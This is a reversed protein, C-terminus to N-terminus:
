GSMRAKDVAAKVIRGFENCSFTSNSQVVKATLKNKQAVIVVRCVLRSM